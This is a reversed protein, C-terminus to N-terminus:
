NHVFRFLLLLLSIITLGAFVPIAQKALRRPLLLEFFPKDDGIKRQIHILPCDGENFAFLAMGEIALSLVALMFLVENVVGTFGVIYLYLLCFAFYITLIGHAVRLAIISKNIKPSSM